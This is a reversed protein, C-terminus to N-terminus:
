VNRLGRLYNTYGGAANASNSFDEDALRDHRRLLVAEEGQAAREQDLKFKKKDLVRKYRAEDRQFQDRKADMQQRYDFEKQQLKDRKEDLQQRYDFEKERLKLEKDKTTDFNFRSNQAVDVFRSSASGSDITKQTQSLDRIFEHPLMNTHKLREMMGTAAVIDSVIDPAFRQLSEFNERDRQTATLDPRRKKLDRWVSETQYKSYLKAAGVAGMTLTATAGASMLGMKYQDLLPGAQKEFTQFAQKVQSRKNRDVGFDGSLMGEGMQRRNNHNEAVNVARTIKSEKAGIFAKGLQGIPNKDIERSVVEKALGKAVRAGIGM